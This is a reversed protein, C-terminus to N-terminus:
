SASQLKTITGQMNIDPPTILPTRSLLDRLNHPRAIAVTMKDYELDQKLTANYIDRIDRRQLGNPHFTWTIFLTDDHTNAASHMEANNFKIAAQHFIPSLNALKHGRDVLRQIFKTLYWQEL